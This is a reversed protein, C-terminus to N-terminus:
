SMSCEMGVSTPSLIWVRSSLGARTFAGTIAQAIAEEGGTAFALLSPGAGSLAVGAAGAEYGAAYADAAGPILALRQPQHLRDGMAVRLHQFDGSTLVRVLLGVRSANFIADSIPLAPLLAARADATLFHFDPLVIVVSLQPPEMRCVVMEPPGQRGDPLIGLVLGGLFAPAVNDPHGEMKVAQRLLADRSLNGAVLANAAVLGAVIATSSSGLGSAVPIRNFQRVVLRSPRRGALQFVSEAATIALNERNAPVKHRDLGDIVIQYETEHGENPLLPGHAVFTAENRLDLAL